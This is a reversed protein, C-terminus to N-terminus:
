ITKLEQFGDELTARLFAIVSPDSLPIDGLERKIPEDDFEFQKKNNSFRFVWHIYPYGILLNLCTTTLDGMPMRDIHNLKFKVTILTGKGVQSNINLSGQCAEAAAKLLPIGLGVKRTTRSTVFPDVVQAVMEPSMGKGDDEVSLVLLDKEEDVNVTLTCNRAKAAVSNEAIDLLHLALEKM